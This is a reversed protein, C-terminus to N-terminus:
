INDEQDSIHRLLRSKRAKILIGDRFIPIQGNKARRYVKRRNEPTDQGFYFNAIEGVGNLLDDALNQPTMDYKVHASDSGRSMAKKDEM